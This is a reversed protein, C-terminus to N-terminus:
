PRLILRLTGVTHAGEQATFQISTKTAALELGVRGWGLQVRAALRGVLPVKDVRASSGWTSGDLFLDRLVLEGEAGISVLLYGDPSRPGRWELTPPANWGFLFSAGALAGTRLTGLSFSGHPQFHLGDKEGPAMVPYAKRRGYRLTLALEFPIQRDWGLPEHKGLSRHFWRHLPAAFSADGTVGVELGFSTSEDPSTRVSTADLFLWGAYPRDHRQRDTDFLWSPTFIAQGATIRTLVCAEPGPDKVCATSEPGGLLKSLPPAWSLVAEARLGHTYYWDTRRHPPIWFVFGDNDASLSFSRLGQARAREVGAGFLCPLLMILPTFTKVGPLRRRPRNRLM